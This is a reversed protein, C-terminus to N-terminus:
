VVIWYEFIHTWESLGDEEQGKTAREEPQPWRFALRELQPIGQAVRRGISVVGTIDTESADGGVIKNGVVDAARRRVLM